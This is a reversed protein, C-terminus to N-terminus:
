LVFSALPLYRSEVHNWRAVLADVIIEVPPGHGGAFAPGAVGVLRFFMRSRSFSM